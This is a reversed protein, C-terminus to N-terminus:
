VLIEVPERSAAMSLTGTTARGTAMAVNYITISHENSDLGSGDDITMNYVGFGEHIHGCIVVKPKIRALARWLSMGGVRIMKESNWDKVRDGYGRPPDHTVLIDIGSPIKEYVEKLEHEEGMFAWDMFQHTWPSCWIKVDDLQVLGDVVIRTAGNDLDVITHTQQEGCFDHNGWTVLCKEAPQKRRWAMWETMFWNLQRDPDDRAWVRGIGDPCQDGAVILLDCPPVTQTLMAHQDSLAYIKM